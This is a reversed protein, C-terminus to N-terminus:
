RAALSVVDIIHMFFVCMCRGVWRRDSLGVSRAVQRDLCAWGYMWGHMCVSM